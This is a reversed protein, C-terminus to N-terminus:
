EEESKNRINRTKRKHTFVRDILSTVGDVVRDSVNSFSDVVRDITVFARDFTKLKGQVDDLIDNVKNVSYILKIVLVILAALLVAGLVYLIIPLVNQEM